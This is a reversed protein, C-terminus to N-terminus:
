GLSSFIDGPVGLLKWGLSVPEALWRGGPLKPPTAATGYLRDKRLSLGSKSRNLTHM